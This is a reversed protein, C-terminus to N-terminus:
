KLRYELTPNERVPEASLSGVLVLTLGMGIILAKKMDFNIRSPTYKGPRALQTYAREPQHVPRAYNADM